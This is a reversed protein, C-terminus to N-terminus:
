GDARTFPGSAIVGDPSAGDGEVVAYHKGPVLRCGPSHKYAEYYERGGKLWATRGASGQAYPPLLPEATWYMCFEFPSLYAVM